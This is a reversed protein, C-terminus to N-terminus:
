TPSAQEPGPDDSIANLRWQALRRRFARGGLDRFEPRVIVRGDFLADLAPGVADDDEVKGLAWRIERRSLGGASEFMLGFGQGDDFGLAEFVEDADKLDASGADIEAVQARLEATLEAAAEFRFHM